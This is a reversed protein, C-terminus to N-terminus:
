YDEPFEDEDKIPFVTFYDQASCREQEEKLLDKQKENFCKTLALDILKIAEDFKRVMRLADISEYFLHFSDENQYDIHEVCDAILQNVFLRSPSKTNDAILDLDIDTKLLLDYIQSEFLFLVNEGNISCIYHPIAEKYKGLNALIYALLFHQFYPNYRDGIQMFLKYDESDVIAKIKSDPKKSLDEGIYGCEECCYLKPFLGTFTGHCKFVDGSNFFTSVSTVKKRFLLNGCNACNYKETIIRTM